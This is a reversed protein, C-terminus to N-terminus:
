SADRREQSEVEIARIDAAEWEAAEFAFVAFTHLSAEESDGDAKEMREAAKSQEKEIAEAAREAIAKVKRRGTKDLVLLTRSLHDHTGDLKGAELAGAIDNFLDNAMGGGVAARMGEKLEKWASAPLLTAKTARYYHEVAGRRPETRVEEILGCEDRLVKVHYSVQSLGQDFAKALESPSVEGAMTALLIHQRLPHALGKILRLDVLPQLEGNKPSKSGKRPKKKPM